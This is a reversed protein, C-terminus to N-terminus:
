TCSGVDTELVRTSVQRCFFQQLPDLQDDPTYSLQPLGHLVSEWGSLLVDVNEFVVSHTGSSNIVEPHGSVKSLLEM